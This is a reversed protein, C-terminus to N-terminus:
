IDYKLFRYRGSLIYYINVLLGRIAMSVFNKFYHKLLTNSFILSPDLYARAGESKLIRYLQDQSLHKTRVNCTFGDYKSFDDTNAVLDAALLEERIQTKPYPTLYQALISDPKLQKIARYQKIVSDKTDDPFGVICGALIAMKHKRLLRTANYNIEPSTPKKMKKLIAPDMSEFGVFVVKFNAKEMCAVLEPNKTIGAATVQTIYQMNNLKHKIIAECVKLFHSIDNTINDDVLLVGKTGLSQIQKLDTVIRDISFRRFKNGYINTISCFKCNFPCGRSTEAVDYPVGLFHFSNRIRAKRLPLNIESLNLLPRDPNHKWGEEHYYSLGKIRSFDKDGREITDVLEKFTAEGEGRVIFDIYNLKEGEAEEKAMLSVHYGGAVIKIYPNLNKIFQAIRCLTSFQFTMASLGVIQPKFATITKEIIKRIHPKYCVLDLVKVDHGMLNGALSIIALNPFRTAYELFDVTGPMALLFVRM